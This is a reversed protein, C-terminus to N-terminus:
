GKFNKADIVAIGTNVDRESVTEVNALAAAAM